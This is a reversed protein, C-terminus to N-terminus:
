EKHIQLDTNNALNPFNDVTIKNKEKNNENLYFECSESNLMKFHVTWHCKTCELTSFTLQENM